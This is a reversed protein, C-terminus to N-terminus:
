IQVDAEVKECCEILNPASLMRNMPVIINGSYVIGLFVTLWKENFDGLVFIRRGLGYKQSFYNAAARIKDSFVHYNETVEKGAKSICLADSDYLEDIKDIFERITRVKLLTKDIM